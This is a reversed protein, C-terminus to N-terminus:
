FCRTTSHENKLGDDLHWIIINPKLYDSPLTAGCHELKKAVAQFGNQFHLFLDYVPDRHGTNQDILITIM